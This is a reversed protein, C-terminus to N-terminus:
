EVSYGSIYPGDGGQVALGNYGAGMRFRTDIFEGPRQPDQNEENYAHSAATNVTKEYMMLARDGVKYPDGGTLSPAMYHALKFMFAVQFDQPFDNVVTTNATFEINLYEHDALIAKITPRPGTPYVPFTPPQPYVGGPPFENGALALNQPVLPYPPDPIECIIYRQASQLDDNRNQGRPGFIRRICVCGPPYKYAFRRELSYGCILLDLRQQVRAFPWEFDRLIEELTENYFARATSAIVTQEQLWNSVTMSSGLQKAARNIISSPVLAGM